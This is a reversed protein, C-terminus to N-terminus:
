AIRGKKLEEELFSYVYGASQYYLGSGPDQLIAFTDSNYLVNLAEQMSYGWEDMLIEILEATLDEQLIGIQELTLKM